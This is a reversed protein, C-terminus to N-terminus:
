KTSNRKYDEYEKWLKEKLEPDTEQEAAERLQRAVIDDDYEVQRQSASGGRVGGGPRREEGETGTGAQMEGGKEKGASSAAETSEQDSTEDESTKQSGEQGRIKEEALEAEKALDQLREASGRRIAELKAAIEEDEALLMDDFESVSRNLEREAKSLDDYTDEQPMTREVEKEAKEANSAASKNSKGPPRAAYVAEMEQVMERNADVMAALRSLYSAYMELLEPSTQDSRQLQEIKAAVGEYTDISIRLDLRAQQLTAKSLSSSACMVVFPTMCLLVLILLIIKGVAVARKM